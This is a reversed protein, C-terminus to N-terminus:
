RIQEHPVGLSEAIAKFCEEDLRTIRKYDHMYRADDHFHLSMMTPTAQNKKAQLGLAAMVAQEKKSSSPRYLLYDRGISVHSHGIINRLHFVIELDEIHQPIMQDRFQDEFDKKVRVFDKEWSEARKEVMVSPIKTPDAVFKPVLEPFNRLILLDVMQGQLWLCRMFFQGAREITIGAKNSDSV